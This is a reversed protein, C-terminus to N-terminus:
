SASSSYDGVRVGAELVREPVGAQDPGATRFGPERTLGDTRLPTREPPLEPALHREETCAGGGVGAPWAHARGADPRLRAARHRLVPAREEHAPEGRHRVALRRGRVRRNAAGGGRATRGRDRD